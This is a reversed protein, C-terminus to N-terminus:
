DRLSKSYWELTYARFNKGWCIFVLAFGNVVLCIAALMATLGKVGMGDLWYQFVWNFITGMINRVFLIAVMTKTVQGPYCEMVYTLTIAVLCLLGYNIFLVGFAGVVWSMGFAPGFGYLCLGLTNIIIPVFILELRFEPESIGNNHRSRWIHYKDSFSITFTGLFAGIVGAYSLNGINSTSFNYPPAAYFQSATLGILSFWFIQVGYAIAVWLVAPYRLTVFPAIGVQFVTNWTRRGAPPQIAMRAVLGKRNSLVEAVSSDALLTRYHETPKQAGDPEGLIADVTVVKLRDFHSEELFFLQLAAVTGACIILMYNCWRWPNLYGALISGFSSGISLFLAYLAMYLGHQHLFFVDGITAEVLTDMPAIGLGNIVSYAMLGGYSERAAFIVSAIVILISLAIYTVRKGFLSSSVESLWCGIALFLYQMGSAINLKNYSCDFQVVFETYVTSTWNLGAANVLVYLLCIVLHVAKWQKSWNLPDDADTSPQPVYVVSGNEALALQHDEDVLASTGPVNLDTSYKKFNFMSTAFALRTRREDCKYRWNSIHGSDYVHYTSAPAAAGGRM